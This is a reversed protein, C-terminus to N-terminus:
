DQLVDNLRVVEHPLLVAYGMSESHAHNGLAAKVSSSLTKAAQEPLVGVPLKSTHSGRKGQTHSKNSPEYPEEPALFQSYLSSTSPKHRLHM